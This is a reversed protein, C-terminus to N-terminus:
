FTITLSWNNLTGTQRAANDTVELTWTGQAPRGDFASLSGVPRFTGTFPASATTISQTAEDDLVTNIFNKGNGGINSFLEVTQGNPGRLLVQLDSVRGHSIDLRVNLDLIAHSDSIHITSTTVGLDAINQPINNSFTAIVPVVQITVTAANSLSQGDGAVYNFTDIGVFGENAKYTAVGNAFTVTGHAPQTYSSVTLPDDDVDTDNALVAIMVAEGWSTSASDDVAVPPSNPPAMVEVSVTAVNSQAAGDTARYTFSDGGVFGAKPTYTVTGDGNLTVMGNAPQTLATVSLPDGDPDHDNGLVNIKVPVGRSTGAEDPAAVPIRNVVSV